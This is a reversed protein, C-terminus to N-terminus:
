IIRGLVAVDEPVPVLSGTCDFFGLRTYFDFIQRDGVSVETHVGHSGNAKLAALVCALLRKVVAPDDIREPLIDMRIVSPYHQYLGDSIQMKDEYLSMIIEEAPTLDTTTLPKPYKEHLKTMYEEEIRSHLSRVDLSALAYGVIQSNSDEVVFCYQPSLQLFAGILKDSMLDPHQPFIATGDMGDDCTLRCISRVHEEDPPLYPRITFIKSNPQDPPKLTFLDLANDLPLMRQFEAQLGGRFVWPEQDGSMFTEKYGKTCGLWKVFSSLLSLIGRMDWVYPYLDYLIGRNPIHFLKEVIDSIHRVEANFEAAKKRWESEEQKTHIGVANQIVLHANTKLWHFDNLLQVARPGHEYPLYFLDVLLLVDDATLKGEHRIRSTEEMRDCSMEKNNDDVQMEECCKATVVSSGDHTADLKSSCEMPELDLQYDPPPSTSSVDSQADTLSNVPGISAPQLYSSNIDALSVLENVNKIPPHLNNQTNNLNPLVNTTPTVTMCTNVGTQFAADPILMPKKPKKVCSTKVVYFEDLWDDIAVKLAHRPNFANNPSLKDCYDAFYEDNETELKIDSDVPSCVRVVDTNSQSWQGLTHFAIFNADFENNPNTLVGRLHPIIEPHRGDYPGLFLRKQDYDNAHINDWIVPARRLVSGIEELSQVTINKSIVKPGTWMIDIGPLLKTGLTNLYESTKVDPVARTSCYETPCFLFKSQGLHQYVENTVSVQAHAFSQFMEKDAECMEIEIDDFLLAFSTCGFQNVQELKRKLYTVDKTSSFTIDIGPSLAYVFSIGHESAAEILSTLHDAEEVSYLDRWYVRHKSDDKPAYLYTNLGFRQMRKFLEKRQDTSWPRGYFGEVVGCLFNGNLDDGEVNQISTGTM